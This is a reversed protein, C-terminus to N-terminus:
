LSTFRPLTVSNTKAIKHLSKILSEYDEQNKISAFQSLLQIKQEEIIYPRVIALCQDFYSIANTIYANRVYAYLMTLNLSIVLFLIMLAISKDNERVIAKSKTRLDELEALSMKELRQKELKENKEITQAQEETINMQLYHASAVGLWFVCGLTSILLIFLIPKNLQRRAIEKYISDRASTFGFTSARLIIRVTGSFFPKLFGEYCASGLAGLGVTLLVYLAWTKADTPFM